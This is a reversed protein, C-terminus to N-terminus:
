NLNKGIINNQIHSKKFRKFISDYYNIKNANNVLNGKVGNIERSSGTFFSILNNIEKNSKSKIKYLRGNKGNISVKNYFDKFNADETLIRYDMSSILVLLISNPYKKGLIRKKMIGLKIDRLKDNNQNKIENYSKL